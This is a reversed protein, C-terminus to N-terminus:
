GNDNRRNAEIMKLRKDAINRLHRLVKVVLWGWVIEADHPITWEEALKGDEYFEFVGDNRRRLSLIERNM